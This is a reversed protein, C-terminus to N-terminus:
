RNDNDRSSSIIRLAPLGMFKNQEHSAKVRCLVSRTTARTTTMVAEDSSLKASFRLLLQVENQKANIASFAHTLPM